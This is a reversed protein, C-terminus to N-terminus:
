YKHYSIHKMQLSDLTHELQLITKSDKDREIRQSTIIKFQWFIIALFLVLYIPARLVLSVSNRAFTILLRKSLAILGRMILTLSQQYTYTAM